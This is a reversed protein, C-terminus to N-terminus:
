KTIQKGNIDYRATKEKPLWVDQEDMNYWSKFGAFAVQLSGDQLKKNFTAKGYKTQVVMGKSYKNSPAALKTPQAKRIPRKNKIIKKTDIHDRKLENNIKTKRIDKKVKAATGDNVSDNTDVDDIKLLENPKYKRQVEEGSGNKLVYSKGVKKLVTYVERSYRQDPKDFIRREVITRVLDGPSFVAIKRIRRPENSFVRGEYMDIPRQRTTSHETYNYNYVIDDFADIWIKSKKIVFWKRFMDRLTRNGREIIGMVNHDGPRNFYTKIKNKEFLKLVKDNIFESGNDANINSPPGYKKFVSDLAQEVTPAMKNKLPVAMMFRSNVDIINLIWAFGRNVSKMNSMDLLDMQWSFNPVSAVIKNYGPKKIRKTVQVSEQRSLFENIQKATIDPHVAQIKKILKQGSFLGYKPSNFIARVAASAAGASLKGKVVKSPLKSTKQGSTPKILIDEYSTDPARIKKDGGKM